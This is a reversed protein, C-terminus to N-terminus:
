EELLETYRTELANESFKGFAEKSATFQSKLEASPGKLFRTYFTQTRNKVPSNWFQSKNLRDKM